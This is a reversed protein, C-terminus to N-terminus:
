IYCIVYHYSICCITFFGLCVSQSTDWAFLIDLSTNLSINRLNLFEHIIHTTGFFLQWICQLIPPQVWKKIQFHINLYFCIYIKRLIGCWRASGFFLSHFVEIPSFIKGHGPWDVSMFGIWFTHCIRWHFKCLLFRFDLM